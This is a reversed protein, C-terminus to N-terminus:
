LHQCDTGTNWSEFVFPMAGADFVVQDKCYDTPTGEYFPEPHASSSTLRTLTLNVLSCKSPWSSTLKSAGANWVFLHGLREVMPQRRTASGLWRAPVSSASAALGFCPTKRWRTKKIQPDLDPLPNFYFVVPSDVPEVAKILPIIWNKIKATKKWKLPYLSWPLVRNLIGNLFCVSGTVRYARLYTLLFKGFQPPICMLYKSHIVVACNHACISRVFHMQQAFPTPLPFHNQNVPLSVRKYHFTGM